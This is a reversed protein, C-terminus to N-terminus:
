QALLRRHSMTQNERRKEEGEGEEEGIGEDARGQWQCKSFPPHALLIIAYSTAPVRRVFCQIREISGKKSKKERRRGKRGECMSIIQSNDEAM